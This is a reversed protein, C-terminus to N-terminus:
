RIAGSSRSPGLLIPAYRIGFLIFAVVWLFAATSLLESGTISALVRALAALNIMVFAASVVGGAVLPRNTHGLAARSSVALILGAMGGVGLAHIGASSPLQGGIISIGLLIFGIGLWAYGTHLVLVLPDPWTKLPQWRAQRLLQLVGAILAIYGTVMEFPLITWALALIVTLSIAAIDVKGFPAPLATSPGYRARLWNGTFAPIIRGGIISILICVLILTARLSLQASGIQWGTVGDVHFTLNLCTLIALVLVIKANRFNKAALVERGMLVTLMLLYSSDLLALLLRPLGFDFAIVLRALLWCFVLCALLLGRVPPRRTWNAVATMLFGGIASGVVGFLMEHGHWVFPSLRSDPAPLLGQVIGIWWVMFFIASLVTCLFLPRFGYSFLRSIHGEFDQPTSM